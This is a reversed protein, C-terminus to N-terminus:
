QFSSAGLSLIIGAATVIMTLTSVACQICSAAPIESPMVSVFSYERLRLWYYLLKAKYLWGEM